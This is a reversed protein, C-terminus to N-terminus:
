LNERASVKVFRRHQWLITTENDLIALKDCIYEIDEIIHTSFLVTNKEAYENLLKRIKIREEPDVGVTPEDVILVPPNGLIAQALGVRRKM